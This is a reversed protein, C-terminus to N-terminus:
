KDVFFVLGVFGFCHQALVLFSPTGWNRKGGLFRRGYQELNPATTEVFHHSRTIAM